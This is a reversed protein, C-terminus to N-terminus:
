RRRYNAEGIRGADDDSCVDSLVTQVEIESNSSGRSEMAVAEQCNHMPCLLSWCRCKLNFM